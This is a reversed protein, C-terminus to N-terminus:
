CDFLLCDFLCNVSILLCLSESVQHANQVLGSSDLISVYPHFRKASGILDAIKDVRRDPFLVSAYNMDVCCIGSVDSLFPEFSLYVFSVLQVSHVKM